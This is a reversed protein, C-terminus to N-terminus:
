LPRLYVRPASRDADWQGQIKTIVKRADYRLKLTLPVCIAGRRANVKARNTAWTTVKRAHAIVASDLQSTTLSPGNATMSKNAQYMLRPRTRCVTSSLKVRLTIRSYAAKAATRM